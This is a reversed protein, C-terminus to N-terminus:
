STIITGGEACVSPPFRSLVIIAVGAILCVFPGITISFWNQHPLLVALGYLLVLSTVVVGPVAVILRAKASLPAVGAGVFAVAISLAFLVALIWCALSRGLKVVGAVFATNKLSEAENVQIEQELLQQERLEQDTHPVIRGFEDAKVINVSLAEKFAQSPFEPLALHAVGILCTNGSASYVWPLFLSLIGVISAVLIGLRQRKLVRHFRPSSQPEANM